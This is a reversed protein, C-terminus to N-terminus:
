GEEYSSRNFLPSYLSFRSDSDEQERGTAPVPAKTLFPSPNKWYEACVAGVGGCGHVDQAFSKAM